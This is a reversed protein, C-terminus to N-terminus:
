TEPLLLNGIGVRRQLHYIRGRFQKMTLKHLAVTVKYLGDINSTNMQFYCKKCLLLLCIAPVNSCFKSYWDHVKAM